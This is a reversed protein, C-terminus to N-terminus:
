RRGPSGLFNWAAVDHAVGVALGEGIDVAPCGLRIGQLGLNESLVLRAADGDVDRPKRLQQPASLSLAWFGSLNRAIGHKVSSVGTEDVEDALAVLDFADQAIRRLIFDRSM